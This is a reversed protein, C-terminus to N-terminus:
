KQEAVFADVDAIASSLTQRRWDTLATDLARALLNRLYEGAAKPSECDARIEPVDHHYVLTSSTTTGKLVIVRSSDTSM